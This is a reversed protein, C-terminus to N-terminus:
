PATTNSLHQPATRRGWRFQGFADLGYTTTLHRVIATLPVHDALGSIAEELFTCLVHSLVRLVNPDSSLVAAGQQAVQQSAHHHDTAQHQAAPHLQRLSTVYVHLLKYWHTHSAPQPCVPGCPAARLHPPM